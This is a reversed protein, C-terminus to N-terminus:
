GRLYEYLADPSDVIEAAGAAQMEDRTGYGWTVGICPIGLENAGLVDYHTDGILVSDNTEGTLELLYRLVAAKGERSHDFTAGAIYEFYRALEFKTLIDRAMAEPKSTAVYLRCGGAQLKELLEVIGPYIECEYKGGHNNYRDRYLRIAEEVQEQPVGLFAFSVGLPPGIMKRLEQTPPTELGLEGFAYRASNMIGKGSDTLTGDLDFLVYKYRM